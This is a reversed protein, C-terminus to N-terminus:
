HKIYRSFTPISGATTTGDDALNIYEFDSTLILDERNTALLQELPQINDIADNRWNYLSAPDFVPDTLIRLSGIEMLLTATGIHTLQINM